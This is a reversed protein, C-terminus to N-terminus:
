PGATAFPDFSDGPQSQPAEDAVPPLPTPSADSAADDATGVQVHSADVDGDDGDYSAHDGDDSDAGIAFAGDGHTPGSGLLVGGGGAGAGDDNDDDDWQHSRFTGASAASVLEIHGRGEQRFAGPLPSQRPKFRGAICAAVVVAVLLLVGVAAGTEGLEKWGGSTPQPTPPIVHTSRDFELRVRYPCSATPTWASAPALTSELADAVSDDVGGMCQNTFATTPTGIQCLRKAWTVTRRSESYYAKGLATACADYLQQLDAYPSCVSISARVYVCVVISTLQTAEVLEEAHTSALVRVCLAFDVDHSGRLSEVAPEGSACGM